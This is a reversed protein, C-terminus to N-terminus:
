RPQCQLDNPNQQCYLEDVTPPDSPKEYVTQELALVPQLQAAAVCTAQEKLVGIGGAPGQSAGKFVFNNILTQTLQAVVGSIIGEANQAGLQLLATFSARQASIIGSVSKEVGNKLVDRPAKVGPSYLEREAAREAESKASNALDEFYVEWGTPSALFDGVRAMKIYYNPDRPDIDAPVFGLYDKAKAEFVPRLDSTNAGCSFQPIFRKIIQRDAQESVYKNLYDDAYQGSILADSYYLFNAIKYNQEIKAILKNLMAGMFQVFASRLGEKVADMIIRPIDGVTITVDGVGLFAHATKISPFFNDKNDAIKNPINIQVIQYKGTLKALEDTYNKTAQNIIAYNKYVEPWIKENNEYSSPDYAKATELLKNYGEMAFLMSQHAAVADKPVSLSYISKKYKQFLQKVEDLSATDATFLAEQAPLSKNNFEQAVLVSNSLYNEVSDKTSAVIKPIVEPSETMIPQDILLANEVEQRIEQETIITEFLEESAAKDIQLSNLYSLYKRALEVDSDQQNYQKKDAYRFSARDWLSVGILSIILVVVIAFHQKQEKTELM